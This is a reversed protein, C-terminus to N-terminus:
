AIYWMHSQVLVLPAGGSDGRSKRAHVQAGILESIRGMDGLLIGQITDHKQSALRASGVVTVSSLPVVIPQASSSRIAIGM